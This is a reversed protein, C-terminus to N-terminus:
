RGYRLPGPSAVHCAGNDGSSLGITAGLVSYCQCRVHVELPRQQRANLRTMSAPKALHRPMTRRIRRRSFLWM